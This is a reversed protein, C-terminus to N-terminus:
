AGFRYVRGDWPRGRRLLVFYGRQQPPLEDGPLGRIVDAVKTSKLPRLEGEPTWKPADELYGREALLRLPAGTMRFCLIASSQNFAERPVAQTEQTGWLSAAKSSRGKIFAWRVTSADGRKWMGHNAAKDLEDYVVLSPIGKQALSFQIGAIEEPDVEGAQLDFRSGRFVIVAPQSPDPPSKELEARDRRMQGEYQPRAEKDDVILVVGPCRRRYGAILRRAAETKGCGSDGLIGVRPGEGFSLPAWAESAALEGDSAPPAGAV